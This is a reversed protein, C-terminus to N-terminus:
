RRVAATPVAVEAAQPEPADFRRLMGSFANAIWKAHLAFHTLLLLVTADASFAHTQHWLQTATTTFGLTAGIVQSVMLGSLIVTVTSLFLLTDVVLNIRSVTSLREFVRNVARLVWDWNFVLHVLAPV